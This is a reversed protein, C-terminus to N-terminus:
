WNHFGGMEGNRMSLDTYVESPIDLETQNYLWEKEAISLENIMASLNEAQATTYDSSVFFEMIALVSKLEKSM